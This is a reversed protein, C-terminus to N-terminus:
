GGRRGGAAGGVGQAPLRAPPPAPPAPAPLAAHRGTAARAARRRRKDEYMRRDAATLLDGLDAEPAAAVAGLSTGVRASGGGPLAVPADVAARLARLVAATVPADPAGTHLLAVFEDGGLRALVGHGDVVAAARQVVARLVEDGADHGFTDNVAKFGDLDFLVLTWRGAGAGGGVHRQFHAALGRRTHAGTLEDRGAASAAVQALQARRSQVLAQVLSLALAAVATGLTPAGPGPAGGPAAAATLRSAALASVALPVLVQAAVTVVLVLHPHGRRPLRPLPPTVGPPLPGTRLNAVLLVVGGAVVCGIGASGTLAAERTLSLVVVADGLVLLAVGAATAALLATARRDPRPTTWAAGVVTSLAAAAVAVDFFCFLSYSHGDDVLAGAPTTLLLLATVSVTVQAQAVGRRWTWRRGGAPPTAHALLGLLAAYRVVQLAITPGPEFERQAFSLGTPDVTLLWYSDGLATLAVYATLLAIAQRARRGPALVAVSAFLVTALVEGGVVARDISGGYRALLVVWAAVAVLM